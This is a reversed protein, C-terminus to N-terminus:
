AEYESVQIVSCQSLLFTKSNLSALSKLHMCVIFRKHLWLVAAVYSCYFHYDFIIIFFGYFQLQYFASYCLVLSRKM